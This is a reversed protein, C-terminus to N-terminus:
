AAGGAKAIAARAQEFAWDLQEGHASMVFKLAGLLEENVARLEDREKWLRQIAESKREVQAMLAAERESGMGNLRCQEEVEAHLRRLEAAAQACEADVAYGSAKPTEGTAHVWRTVRREDLADALRLAEPQKM